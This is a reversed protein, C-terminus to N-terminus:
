SLVEDSTRPLFCLTAMSKLLKANLWPAPCLSVFFVLCFFIIFVAREQTTEAKLM